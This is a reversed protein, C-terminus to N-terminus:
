SARELLNRVQGAARTLRAVSRYGIMTVKAYGQDIVRLPGGRAAWVFGHYPSGDERYLRVAEAINTGREPFSIFESFHTHLVCAEEYTLLDDLAVAAMAKNTTDVWEKGTVVRPQVSVLLPASITVSAIAAATMGIDIKPYSVPPVLLSGTAKAVWAAIERRVADTTSAATAALLAFGYDQAGALMRVVHESLAAADATLRAFLTRPHRRHEVLSEFAALASSEALSHHGLFDAHFHSVDEHEINSLLGPDTHFWSALLQHALKKQAALLATAGVPTRKQSQMREVFAGALTASFDNLWGFLEKWSEYDLVVDRQEIARAVATALAVVLSARDGFRPDRLYNPDRLKFRLLLRPQQEVLTALTQRGACLEAVFDVVGDTKSDAHEGIWSISGRAIADRAVLFDVMSQHPYSVSRAFEESGVALLGARVLLDIRSSSMVNQTKEVISRVSAASDPWIACAILAYWSELEEAGQDGGRSVLTEIFEQLLESARMRLIAEIQDPEDPYATALRASLRVVLPTATVDSSFAEHLGRVRTMFENGVLRVFLHRAEDATLPRLAIVEATGPSPASRSTAFLQIRSRDWRLYREFFLRFASLFANVNGVNHLDEAVVVVHKRTLIYQLARATAVRDSAPNAYWFADVLQEWLAEEFNSPSISAPHIPIITVDPPLNRVLEGLFWTKGVGAPGTMVVLRADRVGAEPRSQFQLFEADESGVLSRVPARLMRRRRVYSLWARLRGTFTSAPLSIPEPHPVGVDAVSAAVAEGVKTLAREAAPEPLSRLDEEDSPVIEM